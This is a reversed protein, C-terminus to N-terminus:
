MRFTLEERSSPIIAYKGNFGNIAINVIHKEGTDVDTEEALMWFNVGKTVKRALLKIFKYSTGTWGTVGSIASAVDQPPKISDFDEFQLGGLPQGQAQEKLQEAM